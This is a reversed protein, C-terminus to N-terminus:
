FVFVPEKQFGPLPKVNADFLIRHSTQGNRKGYLMARGLGDDDEVIALLRGGEALQGTLLDPVAQVGGAMLILDYPGEASYGDSLQGEICVVNDIALETLVSSMEGILDSDSELAFVSQCLQGLLAPAYGFGAGVVLANDTRVPAAEQILRALPMPAMIWRDKGIPLSEDTYARARMAAPVFKERPVHALAALLAPEVVKNTRLQSEIMNRRAVTYDM